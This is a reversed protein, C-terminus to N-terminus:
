FKIEEAKNVWRGYQNKYYNPHEELFEKIAENAQEDDLFYEFSGDPMEVEKMVHEDCDVFEFRGSEQESDFRVDNFQIITCYGDSTIHIDYYSDELEESTKTLFKIWEILLGKDVEEPTLAIENYKKM